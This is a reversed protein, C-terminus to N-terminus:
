SSFECVLYEEENFPILCRRSYYGWILSGLDSVVYVHNFTQDEVPEKKFYYVDIDSYKTIGIISAYLYDRKLYEIAENIIEKKM